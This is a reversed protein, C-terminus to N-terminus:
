RLYDVCCFSILNMLKMNIINTAYNLEVLNLLINIFNSLYTLMVILSHLIQWINQQHSSPFVLIAHRGSFLVLKSIQSCLTFVCHSTIDVSLFKLIPSIHQASEHLMYSKVAVILLVCEQWLHVRPM